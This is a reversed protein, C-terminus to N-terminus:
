KQGVYRCEEEPSAKRLSIIRRMDGRDVFTVHYLRYGILGIACERLEMYAYRDDTWVVANDWDFGSAASLSIGHKRRNLKDKKPDFTIAM